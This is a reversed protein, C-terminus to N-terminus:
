IFITIQPSSNLSSSSILVFTFDRWCVGVPSKSDLFVPQEKWPPSFRRFIHVSLFLWFYLLNNGTQVMFAHLPLLPIVGSMWFRSVVHIHITLKMGRGSWGRSLVSTDMSYYFPRAKSSTRVTKPVLFWKDIGVFFILSKGIMKPRSLFNPAYTESHSKYCDRIGLINFQHDTYCREFYSAM